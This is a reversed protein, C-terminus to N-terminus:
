EKGAWKKLEAYSVEGCLSEKTVTNYFFPVGGCAGDKDCEEFIRINKPNHWVEYGKVKVKAEKELRKILPQM